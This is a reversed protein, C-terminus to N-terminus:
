SLTVATDDIVFSTQLSSDEVGTFNVSITQGAFSSVDFSRLTYGSAKNLNSYTALTTTGAKVTLKDYATSTTTEASDIHLYFTLTAHCGAPIAVSQSLTDTHSSGYGNLWAKWSGSHAAQSTGNDIVGSSATWVTNGSEFGPNGLKQGSCGTGGGSPSITWTFSASGSQPTAASDTATVTVNYTAATTPTGSIVGGTSISLGAPLGTATWTYPATGGSASLTVNSIATGVTGTKSGPNTVTVAGGSPTCTPDGTQAPVSVANWAAKVANFQGCTADLNKAATLTWTRYKLYSSGTTKMLMANYLIKIAKQIGIGTVSSNNCTPSAPKGVPANGEALLYFWHNVPGAAAHVETTPIASSYCNPDNNVLSPNYMNRIPGNGVLNIEEGVLYDPADYDATENAFAESTAGFADAIWEKTGSGSIAGPTHDDIAHGFEHAVVDISTIWKAPSDQNHGITVQYGGCSSVGPCYYANVDDLGVRLPVWTGNGDMGNRGLWDTLMKKETQLAFLGDVCGTEKNTADGNGWADDSGTFTTNNAADQCVVSPSNPDAMSYTSGSQTTNLTLPNPGNYAGTGTGTSILETASIVTGRQADVYIEQLSIKGANTGGVRAKWALRPTGLAYVVLTPTYATDVTTLKSKAIATANAASIAPRTNLAPITHDQAVSTAKVNGDADTVVVFDGGVVPLSKYSRVYPAYQLGASGSQVPRASFVDSPSAHLAAPRSAVLNSAATAALSRSQAPSPHPSSAPAADAGRSSLGLAGITVLGTLVTALAPRVSRTRLVM